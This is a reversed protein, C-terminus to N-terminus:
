STPPELRTLRPDPGIKVRVVPFGASENLADAVVLIRGRGIDHREVLEDVITLLRTEGLASLRDADITPRGALMSTLLAEDDADLRGPEGAARAQLARRIRERADRIGIAGLVGMFGDPPEIDDALEQAAFWRRDESSPPAALEVVLGPRADLIQAITAISRAGQATPDSRGAVFAVQAPAEPLPHQRALTVADRVARAVADQFAATTGDGPSALTMQLVVDGSPDRLEAFAADPPMGFAQRLTTDDGAVQPDRLTVTTDASWRGGAVAVRAHFSGTGADFRYPLGARAFYPALAPLPVTQGSVELERGAFGRTGGVRLLGLRRDSGGLAFDAFTGDPLRLDRVWAEGLGMDVAITPASAADVVVLRGGSAHLGAVSVQLASAPEEIPLVWGEPTRTLLAYPTRLKADALRLLTPRIETGDDGGPVVAAVDLDLTGAGLAFVNPDEAAVWVDAVSVKGRVDLTPEDVAGPALEVNLDASGRGAQAFAAWPVGVYRAFAPADIGGATVRGEIVMGHTMRLTGDFAAAGEGRRVWARLPSWYAAPGLNEGAVNALLVTTGDRGAVHVRGDPTSLRAITWRWPRTREGRNPSPAPEAGFPIHARDLIPLPATLEPRAALTAGRLTVDGIAVRRAALDIADIAVVAKPVALAPEDLGPVRAALGRVLLRGTLVDRRGPDRQYHLGGSLTGDLSSWGADAVYPRLRALPVAKARVRADVVLGDSRLDSSGNVRLRGGDVVADVRLNPARGFATVRRPLTSVQASRVDVQVADPDDPAIGHLRLRADRLAIRDLAFTWDAPLESAPNAHLFTELSSGDGALRALEIHASELVLERVLLERHLLPLWQVDVQVRRAAVAPTDGATPNTSGPAHVTVDYLTVVGDISPLGVDAVDVRTGLIRTLRTALMPALMIPVSLRAVVLVVILAIWIRWHSRRPARDAVERVPREDHSTDDPTPYSAAPTEVTELAPRDYGRARPFSM